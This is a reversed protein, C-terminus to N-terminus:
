MHALAPHLAFRWCGWRAWGFPCPRAFRFTAASAPHVGRLRLAPRAKAVYIRLWERSSCTFSLIFCLRSGRSRHRKASACASATCHASPWPRPFLSLFLSRHSFSVDHTTVSNGAPLCSLSHQPPSGLPSTPARSAPEGWPPGPLIKTPIERGVGM